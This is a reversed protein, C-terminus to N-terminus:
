PATFRQVLDALYTSADKSDPAPAWPAFNKDSIPAYPGRKLEYLVTNPELCVFTHWTGARVDVGIAEGGVDLRILRSADIDGRDDFIVVGVAGRVVVIAEDKPPDIHRHPQVYTGPQMANLMRHMLDDDSAHFRHIERGRANNAADLCKMELLAQDIVAMVDHASCTAAANVRKIVDSM